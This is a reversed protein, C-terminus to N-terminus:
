KKKKWQALGGRDGGKWGCEKNLSQRETCNPHVQNLLHQWRIISRQEGKRLFGTWSKDCDGSRPPRARGNPYIRGERKKQGEEKKGAQRMSIELWSYITKTEQLTEITKGSYRVVICVPTPIFRVIMPRNQQRQQAPPKYLARVHFWCIPLACTQVGTM